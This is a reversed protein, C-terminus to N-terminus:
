NIFQYLLIESVDNIGEGFDSDGLLDDVFLIIIPKFYFWYICKYKWKLLGKWKPTLYTPACHILSSSYFIILVFYHYCYYYYCYYYYLYYYYCYHYLFYAKGQILTYEERDEEVFIPIASFMFSIFSWELKFGVLM